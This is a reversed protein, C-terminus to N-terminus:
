GQLPPASKNYQEKIYEDLAMKKSETAHMPLVEPPDMLSRRPCSYPLKREPDYDDMPKKVVAM